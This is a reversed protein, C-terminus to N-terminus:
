SKALVTQNPRYCNSRCHQQAVWNPGIHSLSEASGPFIWGNPSLAEALKKFLTCQDEGTFYIAVNRCFIVDYSGLESFPEHLNKIQFNCRSRIKENIQWKKDKKTFYRSLRLPDMGRGIELENYIGSKAQELAAPSIDTGLIQIDWQDFDPLLDAITMAISYPEQGTSCAASWIRIRKPFVTKAKDDIVEPIVKYQLAKFPSEDRFWLTENTTIADVVEEKLGPVLEARVKRAFDQYNECGNKDVIASLRSEILYAKSEDWCIGCLDDVLNCVADIDETTLKTM